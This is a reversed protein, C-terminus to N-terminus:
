TWHMRRAIFLCVVRRATSPPTTPRSGTGALTRSVENSSSESTVWEIGTGDAPVYGAPVQVYRPYLRLSGVAM